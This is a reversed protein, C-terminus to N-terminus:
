HPLYIKLCINLLISLAGFFHLTHHTGTCLPRIGIPSEPNQTMLLPVACATPGSQRSEFGPEAM